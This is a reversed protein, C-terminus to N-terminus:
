DCFPFWNKAYVYVADEYLVHFSAPSAAVVVGAVDAEVGFEGFLRALAQFVDQEVFHEVQQLWRMVLPEDGYHNLVHGVPASM